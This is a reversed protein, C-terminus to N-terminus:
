SVTLAVCGSGLAECSETIVTLHNYNCYEYFDHDLARGNVEVPM